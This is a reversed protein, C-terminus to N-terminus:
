TNNPQLIHTGFMQDYIIRPKFELNSDTSQIFGIAGM